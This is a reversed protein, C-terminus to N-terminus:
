GSGPSRFWLGLGLEGEVAEYVPVVALQDHSRLDWLVVIGDRGGSLLSWGDPALARSTAASNHAQVCQLTTMSVERLAAQLSILDPCLGVDADSPSDIFSPTCTWGGHSVELAAVSWWAGSHQKLAASTGEPRGPLVKAGPGLRARLRGRWSYDAVAASEPVAGKVSARQLACLM